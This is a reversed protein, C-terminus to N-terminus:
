QMDEGFFFLSIHLGTYGWKEERANGSSPLGSDTRLIWKNGIKHRTGSWFRVRGLPFLLVLSSNTIWKPSITLINGTIHYLGLVCLLRVSPLLIVLSIFCPQSCSVGETIGLDAKGDLQTVLEGSTWSIFGSSIKSTYSFPHVLYFIQLCM